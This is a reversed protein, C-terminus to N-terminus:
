RPCLLTGAGSAPQAPSLFVGSAHGGHLSMSLVLLDHLGIGTVVIAAALALTVFLVLARAPRRRPPGPPMCHPGVPPRGRGVDRDRDDRDPSLDIRVVHGGMRAAQLLLSAVAGGGRIQGAADCALSSRRRLVM